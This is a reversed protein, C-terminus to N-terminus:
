TLGLLAHVAVMTEDNAETSHGGPLHGQETTAHAVPETASDIPGVQLVHAVYTLLGESMCCTPIYAPQLYLAVSLFKNHSAAQQGRGTLAAAYSQWLLCRALLINLLCPCSCLYLSCVEPHYVNSQPAGEAGSSNAGGVPDQATTQRALRSQQRAAQGARGRATGNGACVVNGAELSQPATGNGACVAANGAELSRADDATQAAVFLPSSSM